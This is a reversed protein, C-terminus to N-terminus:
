KGGFAALDDFTWSSGCRCHAQDEPSWVVQEHDFAIGGDGDVTFELWRHVTFPGTGGCTPCQLSEYTILEVNAVNAKM